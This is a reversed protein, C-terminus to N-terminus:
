PTVRIFRLPKGTGKVYISLATGEVVVREANRLGELYRAEQRGVAEACSMRTSGLAGFTISDRRVNVTGSFRNCSGSGSARGPQPFELTAQVRDLVGIGGLDELRWSTGWLGVPMPQGARVLLLDVTDTNGQTTIRHAADTTFLLGDGSRISASIAYTRNPLLKMPDYRLEFRFPVQRGQTLITTDAVVPAAVDQRSVDSLKVTVIADTPLAVRERYSVTGTLISGESARPPMPACGAAIGALIFGRLRLGPKLSRLIVVRDSEFEFPQCLDAPQLHHARSRDNYMGHIENRGIILEPRCNPPPRPGEM